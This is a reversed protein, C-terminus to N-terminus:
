KSIIKRSIRLLRLLCIKCIDSSLPAKSNRVIVDNVSLPHGGVIRFEFYLIVKLILNQNDISNELVPLQYRAVKKTRVMDMVMM